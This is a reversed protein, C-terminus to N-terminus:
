KHGNFIGIVYPIEVKNNYASTILRSISGYCRIWVRNNENINSEAEKISYRNGSNKFQAISIPTLEIQLHYENITDYTNAWQQSLSDNALLVPNSLEGELIPKVENIFDFRQASDWETLHNPKSSSNVIIMLLKELAIRLKGKNSKLTFNSISNAENQVKINLSLQTDLVMLQKRLLVNENALSDIQSHSNRLLTDFGKIEQQSHLITYTLMIGWIGIILTVVVSALGIWDAIKLSNRKFIM